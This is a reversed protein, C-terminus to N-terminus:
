PENHGMKETYSSLALEMLRKMHSYSYSARVCIVEITLGDVYRWRLITAYFPNDRGVLELRCEISRIKELTEAFILNYKDELRDIKVIIDSLNFGKGGQVREEYSVGRYLLSANLKVLRDTIDDLSRKLHIIEGLELKAEDNM